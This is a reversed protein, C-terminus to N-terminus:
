RLFLRNLLKHSRLPSKPQGRRYAAYQGTSTGAYDNNIIWRLWVLGQRFGLAFERVIPEIMCKVAPEVVFSRAAYNDNSLPEVFVVEHTVHHILAAPFQNTEGGDGFLIFVM